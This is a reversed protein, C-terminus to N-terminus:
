GQAVFDTRPRIKRLKPHGIPSLQVLDSLYRREEDRRDESVSNSGECAVSAALDGPDLPGGLAPSCLVHAGHTSM